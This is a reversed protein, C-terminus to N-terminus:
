PLVVMDGVPEGGDDTLGFAEGSPLLQSRFQKSTWSNNPRFSSQSGLITTALVVTAFGFARTSPRCPQRAAVRRPVESQVAVVEPGREGGAGGGGACLDLVAVSTERSEIGQLPRAM